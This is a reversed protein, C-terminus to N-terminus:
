QLLELQDLDQVKDISFSELIDPVIKKNMTTLTKGSGIEIFTTVKEKAMNRISSEWRTSHTIQDILNEKIKKADQVYNGPVNMVLRGVGSKVNCADIYPKLQDQADQMLGSHFAGEVELFIIRKAGKAKLLEAAKEVGNKSGSIVVQGPSNFNAAWVRENKCTLLTEEVLSSPLGLIAAMSGPHKECCETMFLARKQVLILAEEFSIRESSALATYEGLSLGAFSDFSLNACLKKVVRFLAFSNIFIGLQSYLTKNIKDEPGHFLINQIDMKLIDEAEEFTEKALSFAAFFDKGMGIYQAGQGPFLLAIKRTM